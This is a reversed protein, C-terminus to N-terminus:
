HTLTDSVRMPWVLYVFNLISGIFALIVSLATCCLRQISQSLSLALHSAFVRVSCMLSKQGDVGLAWNAAGNAISFLPDASAAIETKFEPSDDKQKKMKPWDKLMLDLKM